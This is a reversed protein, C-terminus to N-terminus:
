TLSRDTTHRSDTPGHDTDEGSEGLTVSIGNWHAVSEAREILSRQRQRVGRVGDSEETETQSSQRRRVVRGRGSEETETQSRRRQGVGRGTAVATM